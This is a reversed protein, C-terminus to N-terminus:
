SKLEERTAAGDAFRTAVEVARHSQVNEFRDAVRLCCAIAWLRLKRESIRGRLCSLMREPDFCETWEWADSPWNCNRASLRRLEQLLWGRVSDGCEVILLGYLTRAALTSLMGLRWGTEQCYGHDLFNYWRAKDRLVSEPLGCAVLTSRHKRMWMRWDASKKHHDHFAM